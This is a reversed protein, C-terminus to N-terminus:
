PQRAWDHWSWYRRATNSWYVHAGDVALGCRRVDATPSSTRTWAAATSTPARSRPTGRCTTWYVHAGDVAVVATASTARTIFNQDVGTGDLNARGISGPGSAWYVHAGDVAM